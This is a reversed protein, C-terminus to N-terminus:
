SDRKEPPIYKLGLKKFIDEETKIGKVLLAGKYLGNLNLKMGRAQAHKSMHINFEKSGTFHLLAFPYREETTFLIDVPFFENYKSSKYLMKIRVDGHRILKVDKSPNVVIRSTTLLDIDNISEKKRRFSGTITAKINYKKMIEKGVDSVESRTYPKGRTYKITLYAERPLKKLDEKKIDSLKMVKYPINPYKGTNLQKLISDSIGAINDLKGTIAFDVQPM